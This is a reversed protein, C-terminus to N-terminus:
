TGPTTINGDNNTNDNKNMSVHKINNNMSDNKIKRNNTITQAPQQTQQSSDERSRKKSGLAIYSSLVRAHWHVQFAGACLRKLM